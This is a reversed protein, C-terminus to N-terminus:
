AHMRTAAERSALEAFQEVSRRNDRLPLPAPHRHGQPALRAARASSQEALCHAARDLRAVETIVAFEHALPIDGSVHVQRRPADFEIVRWHTRAKWPGVITNREDYTSGERAPGDTRTVEDTGVVWDAYRSTDSLLDWVAGPPASVTSSATVEIVV